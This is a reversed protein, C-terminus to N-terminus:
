LRRACHIQELRGPGRLRAQLLELPRLVLILILNSVFPVLLLEGVRVCLGQLQELLLLVVFLLFFRHAVEVALVVFHLVDLPLQIVRYVLHLSGGNRSRATTAISRRQGRWGLHRFVHRLKIWLQGRRRGHRSVLRQM